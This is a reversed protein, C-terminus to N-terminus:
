EISGPEQPLSELTDAASLDPTELEDPRGVEALELSVNNWQDMWEQYEEGKESDQWKESRNCFDAEAEFYVDVALEGAQEVVRNYEEVAADVPAMAVELNANFQSIAAEVKEAAVRLAAVIEDRKTLHDKTLSKM